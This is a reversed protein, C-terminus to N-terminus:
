KESKLHQNMEQSAKEAVYLDVEVKSLALQIQTVTISQKALINKLAVFDMISQAYHPRAKLLDINIEQMMLSHVKNEDEISNISAEISSWSNEWYKRIEEIDIAGFDKSTEEKTEDVVPLVTPLEERDEICATSNDQM